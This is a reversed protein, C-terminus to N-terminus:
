LPSSCNQLHPPIKRRADHPYPYCPNHFPKRLPSFFFTHFRKVTGNTWYLSGKLSVDFKSRMRRAGTLRGEGQHSMMLHRVDPSIIRESLDCHSTYINRNEGFDSDCQEKITIKSLARIKSRGYIDRFADAISHVLAKGTVHCLRGGTNNLFM